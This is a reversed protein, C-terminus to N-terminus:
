GLQGDHFEGPGGVRKLPTTLRDEDYILDVAAAAKVCLHGKSFVHQKNGEVKLIRNDEVTALLACHPECICCHTRIKESAAPASANETLMIGGTHEEAWGHAVLIGLTQDPRRMPGPRRNGGARTRTSLIAELSSLRGSRLSRRQYFLLWDSVM